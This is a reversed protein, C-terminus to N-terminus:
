GGLAKHAAARTAQDPHEESILELADRYEPSTAEPMANVMGEALRARVTQSGSARGIMLLDAHRGERTLKGMAIKNNALKTAASRRTEEWWSARAITVMAALAADSATAREALQDVIRSRILDHDRAAEKQAAIRRSQSASQTIAEAEERIHDPVGPGDEDAEFDRFISGGGLTSPGQSSGRRIERRLCAAPILADIQDAKLLADVMRRASVESASVILQAILDWQEDSLLREVAKDVDGGMTGETLTIIQHSYKAFIDTHV